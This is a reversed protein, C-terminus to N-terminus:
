APSAASIPRPVFRMLFAGLLPLCAVATLVTALNFREALLGLPTVALGGLGISLGLMLGSMM